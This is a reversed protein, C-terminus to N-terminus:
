MTELWPISILSFDVKLMNSSTYLWTQGMFFCLPVCHEVKAGQTSGKPTLKGKRYERDPRPTGVKKKKVKIISQRCREM